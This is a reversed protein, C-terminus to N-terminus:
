QKEAADGGFELDVEGKEDAGKPPNLLVANAIQYTVGIDGEFTILGDVMTRLDEIPTEFKWVIKCTLKSPMVKETFGYVKFGSKQERAFGGMDLEAGPMSELLEGNVKIRAIGLIKSM